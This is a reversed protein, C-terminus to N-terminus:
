KVYEWISIKTLSNLGRLTNHIESIDFNNDIKAIIKIDVKKTDEKINKTLINMPIEKLKREIIKNSLNQKKFELEVQCFRKKQVFRQKFKEVFVLNILIFMTTIGAILFLWAWAALWIAATAWINAATTLWKTNLGIKMIAWAGLFWVWSVVQAAIRWPDSVKSEYMEPLLISIIMFLASWLAILIHTTVGAPQNKYERELWIILAFVLAFALRWLVDLQSISLASEHIM